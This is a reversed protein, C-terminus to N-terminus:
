RRICRVRVDRHTSRAATTTIAAALAQPSSTTLVEAAVSVPLAVPELVAGASDLEPVGVVLGVEAPESLM